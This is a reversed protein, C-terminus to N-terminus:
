PKLEEYRALFSLRATDPEWVHHWGEEIHGYVEVREQVIRWEYPEADASWWDAKALLDRKETALMRADAKLVSQTFPFDFGYQRSLDHTIARERERLWIPMQTTPVDGFGTYAKCAGHMLFAYAQGKVVVHSGIVCHQAVSYRTIAGFRFTGSLVYAIHKIDYDQPPEHRRTLPYYAAGTLLQISHPENPM